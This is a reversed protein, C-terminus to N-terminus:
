VQLMQIEKIIGSWPLIQEQRSMQTTDLGLISAVDIGLEIQSDRDVDDSHTRSDWVEILDWHTHVEDTQTRTNTELIEATMFRSEMLITEKNIHHAFTEEHSERGRMIGSMQSDTSINIKEEAGVAKITSSNYTENENKYIENGQLTNKGSNIM